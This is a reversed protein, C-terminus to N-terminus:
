HSKTWSGADADKAHEISKSAARESGRTSLSVFYALQHLTLSGVIISIGGLPGFGQRHLVVAALVALALSSLAIAFWSFFRGLALGIISSLGFLVIVSIM